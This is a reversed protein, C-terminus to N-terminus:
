NWYFKQEASGDCRWIALEGGQSQMSRYADLCYDPYDQLRINNEAYVWRQAYNNDCPYVQVVAGNRIDGWMVDLCMNNRLYIMNGVAKWQQAEGGNCTWMQTPQWAQLTNGRLDVCRSGYGVIQKAPTGFSLAPRTIFKNDLIWNAEDNAFDRMDARANVASAAYQALWSAQFMYAGRQEWTWDMGGDPTHPCGDGNSCSQGNRHRAEHVIISARQVVNRHWFPQYLYMVGTGSALAAIDGPAGRAGPCYSETREINARTWRPAWGLIDPHNPNAFTLESAASLFMGMARTTDCPEYWGWTSWNGVNMGYGGKLAEIHPADCWNRSGMVHDDWSSRHDPDGAADEGCVDALATSSFLLGFGLGLIWKSCRM